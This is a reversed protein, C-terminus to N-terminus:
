NRVLALSAFGYNYVLRNEESWSWDTEGLLKFGDAKALDVLEEYVRKTFMKGGRLWHFHYGDDEIDAFDTTLFLMGEPKVTRLLDQFAKQYEKIHELTSICLSVDYRGYDELVLGGLPRHLMRYTGAVNPRSKKISACAALQFAEEDGHAWTEYLSVNNGAMLMIAPSLGVGCGFDGVEWPKKSKGGKRTVWMGYARFMMAYEWKRHQHQYPHPPGASVQALGVIGSEWKLEEYDAERMTKSMPLM